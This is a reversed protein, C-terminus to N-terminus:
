NAWHNCKRHDVWETEVKPEGMKNFTTYEVRVKSNTYLDIDVVVAKGIPLQKQEFVTSGDDKTVPTYKWTNQQCDIVDSIKFDIDNTFGNLANYLYTVKGKEVFVGMVTNVLGINHKYDSDLTAMLKDSISDVSITIEIDKNFRKIKPLDVFDKTNPNM